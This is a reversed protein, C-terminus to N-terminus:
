YTHLMKFDKLFISFGKVHKLIRGNTSSYKPYFIKPM